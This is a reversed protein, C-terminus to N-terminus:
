NISAVFVFEQVVQDLKGKLHDLQARTVATGADVQDILASINTTQARVATVAAEAAIKVDAAYKSEPSVKEEVPDPEGDPFQEHHLVDASTDTGAEFRAEREADAQHKAALKEAFTM